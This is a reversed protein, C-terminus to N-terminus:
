HSYKEMEPDLPISKIDGGIPSFEEQPATTSRLQSNQKIVAESALVREHLRKVARTLTQDGPSLDLARQWSRMALEHNGTKLLLTGKMKLLKPSNPYFSVLNNIEMLALEYNRERYYQNIKAIGMSYSPSQIPGEATGVGLAADMVAVETPSAKELSPLSGVLEKDTAVPNPAKGGRAGVSIAESTSPPNLGALPIQIDYGDGADPIEVAYESNGVASRIVFKDSPHNSGIRKSENVFPYAILSEKPRKSDSACGVLATILSAVL